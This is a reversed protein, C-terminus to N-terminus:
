KYNANNVEDDTPTRELRAIVAMWYVLLGIMFVTEYALLPLELIPFLSAVAMAPFAAYIGCKWMERLTLFRLRGSPGNLLRYMGMFIGTYLLAIFFNWVVSGAISFVSFLVSLASFFLEVKEKQM